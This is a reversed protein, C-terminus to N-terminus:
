LGNETLPLKIIFTTGTEHDTEFTLTGDHHTIISHSISLGQGTGKGMTKTTFFPDFIKTQAHKPIGGGSDSIRIEVWKDAIVDTTIIIMGKDTLNKDLTEGIADAANTILNLFVQNLEAPYCSIMPLQPELYLKIDAVFKWHNKSIALTNQIADNVNLMKKTKQGPHSFEKMAKVIEAVTKVGELSHKIAEPIEQTLFDLDTDQVKSHLEALMKHSEAPTTTEEYLSDCSQILSIIENFGEELFRINDGIYQTPTNIEHAIGSALQGISELKQAQLLQSQMAKQQTTDHVICIIGLCNQQQDMFRASNISVNIVSEEEESAKKVMRYEQDYLSGEKLITQFSDLLKQYDDPHIIHEISQGILEEPTYGLIETIRNNCQLINGDSKITLIMNAATEFVSRYKEENDQMNKNIRSLQIVQSVTNSLSELLADEVPTIPQKSFLALVGIPKKGPTKLQYGAFSVLGLEAAWKKNHVWPNNLVDNTIFKREINSSIKGIKYAGFPVRRHGRGDIHTYRGASSVLHLCEQRNKCAPPNGDVFTAHVCSLTCLDGPENIWIRCFDAQFIEVM